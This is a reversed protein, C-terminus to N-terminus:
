FGIADHQAIMDQVTVNNAAALRKAFAEMVPTTFKNWAMENKPVYIVGGWHIHAWNGGYIIPRWLAGPMAAKDEPIQIENPLRKFDGEKIMREILGSQAILIDPPLGPIVRVLHTM